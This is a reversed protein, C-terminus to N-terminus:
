LTRQVSKSLVEPFTATELLGPSCTDWTYKLEIYAGEPLIAQDDMASDGFIIKHSYSLISEALSIVNSAARYAPQRRLSASVHRVKLALIANKRQIDASFEVSAIVYDSVCEALKVASIEIVKLDQPSIIDLLKGDFIYRHPLSRLVFYADRADSWYETPVVDNEIRCVRSLQYVDRGEIRSIRSLRIFFGERIAVEAEEVVDINFLLRGHFSFEVIVSAIIMIYDVHEAALDARFGPTLIFICNGDERLRRLLDERSGYRRRVIDIIVEARERDYLVDYLTIEAPIVKSANRLFLSDAIKSIRSRPNRRLWELVYPHALYAVILAVAGVALGGWGLFDM